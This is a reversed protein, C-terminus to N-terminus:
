IKPWVEGKVKPQAQCNKVKVTNCKNVEFQGMIDSKTQCNNDSQDPINNDTKVQPQTQCNLDSDKFKKDSLSLRLDHESLVTQSRGKEVIVDDSPASSLKESLHCKQRYFSNSELTKIPSCLSNDVTPDSKPDVSIENEGKINIKVIEVINEIKSNTNM